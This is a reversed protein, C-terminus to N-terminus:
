PVRVDFAANTRVPGDCLSIARVCFDHQWSQVSHVLADVKQEIEKDPSTNFEVIRKYWIPQQVLRITLGLGQYHNKVPCYITHGVSCRRSYHTKFEAQFSLWQSSDDSCCWKGIMRKNDYDGVASDIRISDRWDHAIFDLVEANFYGEHLDSEIYVYKEVVIPQTARNWTTISLYAVGAFLLVSLLAKNNATNNM